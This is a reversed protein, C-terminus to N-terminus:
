KSQKSLEVEMLVDLLRALQKLEAESLILENSEHTTPSSTEQKLNNM